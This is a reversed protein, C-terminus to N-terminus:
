SKFCSKKDIIFEELIKYFEEIKINEPRLVKTLTAQKAILVIKKFYDPECEPMGLMYEKRYIENRLIIYKNVGTVNEFVVKQKDHIGLLFIHHLRHLSAKASQMPFYYKSTKSNIKTLNNNNQKLQTLTDDWLKITDSMAWINPINENFVIPTVDDTLFEAGNLSFAATVSSKGAGSEGCLMIGTGEYNFCSAHFPLTHRQHLIAGYVSGNLFLELTNKNYGAAPTIEIHKGNKVYFFAVGDINLSFENKNIKLFKDSYVPQTVTNKLHTTKIMVDDAPFRFRMIDPILKQPKSFM